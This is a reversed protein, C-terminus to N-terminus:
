LPTGGTATCNQRVSAADKGYTYTDSTRTASTHRCGVGGSACSHNNASRHSCQAAFSDRDKSSTFTYHICLGQSSKADCTLLVSGGPGGAVAVECDEKSDYPGGTKTERGNVLPCGDRWCPTVLAQDQCIYWEESPGCGTTAAVALTSIATLTAAVLRLRTNWNQELTM